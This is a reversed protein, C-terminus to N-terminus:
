DWANDDSLLRILEYKPMYILCHSRTEDNFRMDLHALPFNTKFVDIVVQRVKKAYELPNPVEEETVNGVIDTGALIIDLDKSTGGFELIAPQLEKQLKAGVEEPNSNGCESDNHGIYGEKLERNHIVYSTCYSAEPSIGVDGSSVKAIPPREPYGTYVNVLTGLVINVM